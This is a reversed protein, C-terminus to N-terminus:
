RGIEADIGQDRLAALVGSEADDESIDGRLVGIHIDYGATQNAPHGYGRGVRFMQRARPPLHELWAFDMRRLVSPHALMFVLNAMQVPGDAEKLRVSFGTLHFRGTTTVVSTHSECDVQVRKGHAELTDVLAVAMAGRRMMSEPSVHANASVSVGLKLVRPEQEVEAPVISMFEEPEGAVFRGIDLMDGAVDYHLEPVHLRRVIKDTLQVSM